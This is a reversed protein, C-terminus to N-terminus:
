GNVSPITSNQNVPEPEGYNGQGAGSQSNNATSVGPTLTLLPTFDRGNLPLDNVQKTEIVTGLEATSAELQPAAGQFTVVTTQSGVTLAFDITAAQGVTLAFAPVQQEAFGASSAQVTYKGPTIALFLYAGAGNSTTSNEVGTAVNRLVIKANTVVAGSSDRDAGSLSATSLQAFGTVSLLLIGSM